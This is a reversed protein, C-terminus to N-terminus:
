IKSAPLFVSVGPRISDPVLICGVLKAAKQAEQHFWDCQENGGLTQLEQHIMQKAASLEEMMVDPTVFPQELM